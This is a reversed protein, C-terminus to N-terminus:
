DLRSEESALEQNGPRQLEELIPLVVTIKTGKGLESEVEIRGGHADVIERCLALGLGFHDGAEVRAGDARYFREFVRPLDEASIGIGTDAVSLYIGQSDHRLSVHISGGERNYSTANDLLNTVVQGLRVPDGELIVSHLDAHVEVAKEEGLTRATEVCKQVLTSLDLLERTKIGRGGDFSALALLSEVLQSMSRAASQCVELAEEYEEQSRERKLVSQTEALIIAIPTRLEHSADSTFRTQRKYAEGLRDFTHNLLAALRGLESRTNVTQIRQDLEGKAIRDAANSIDSIPMLAKHAVWYSLCLGAGLIVIGSFVLRTAKRRLLALDSTIDRGILIVQGASTQRILERMGDRTRETGFDDEDPFSITSPSGESRFLISKGDASWILYYHPIGGEEDLLKTLETTLQSEPTPKPDGEWPAKDYKWDPPPLTSAVGENNAAFVVTLHAARSQLGADIRDMLTLRQLSFEAIGYLVLVVLLLLGYFYQLRWSLSQLM